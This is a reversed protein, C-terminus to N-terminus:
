VPLGHADWNLPDFADQRDPIIDLQALLTSTRASSSSAANARNAQERIMASVAQEVAATKSVGMALALQEVKSVVAPNAIQLAM